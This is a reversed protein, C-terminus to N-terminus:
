KRQFYIQLGTTFFNKGTEDNIKYDFQHIFGLQFSLLKSPKIQILIATRNRQFYPVNTGVFIENNLLVSLPLKPLNCKLGVRYRFRNQYGNNTFRLEIRYRNELQLFKFHNLTIVQPTIRLEDSNKPKVFNGGEKFTQYNGAGLSFVLDDLIKFNVFGKYEYYHFHDYFLLSRFQAEGIFSWKNNTTYNINLINWSGLQANSFSYIFGTVLLFWKKM